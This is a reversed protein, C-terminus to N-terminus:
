SCAGKTTRPLGSLEITICRIYASDAPNMDIQIAPSTTASLRGSRNYTLTSPAGSIVLNTLADHNKLVTGDARTIQWGAQWSGTVPTITVDGNRKIAESRAVMLSSFLEFSANKVRQNHVLAQFSPLAIGALIAVITVVVLLEVLTFGTSLKLSKMATLDGNAVQVKLALTM